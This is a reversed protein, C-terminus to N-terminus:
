VEYQYSTVPSVPAECVIVTGSLEQDPALVLAIVAKTQDPNELVVTFQSILLTWNPQLLLPALEDPTEETAGVDVRAEEATGVDVRADDAAEVDVLAEEEILLEV